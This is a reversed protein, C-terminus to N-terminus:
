CPFGMGEVAHTNVFDAATIPRRGPLQLRLLRLVGNGTAVDIGQPKAAIVRGPTETSAQALVMTQWIRLPEGRFRTQAIPWPTLARVQRSLAEAGNRWDIEAEAKHLKAAYTAELDNQPQPTLVGNELGELAVLVAEAGIDALRDHLSAATDSDTIPTTRRILIDGTDLGAAMQMITVGTQKDGALIARQVPAAGRWRPLLSAHINICGLRPANLVEEPLLLGYAAVVLVDADLGLVTQSIDRSRLSVPQYVPLDQQDAFRKVPSVRLKRGRGAVRDSQTFVAVVDHPSHTLARLAPLAFGPTGAFILRM